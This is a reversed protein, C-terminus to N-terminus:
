RNVVLRHDVIRDRHEHQGADALNEDDGGRVVQGLVAVQQAVAALEADFEAIRLLRRRVAQGLGKQNAFLENAFVGYAQNKAVVDEM